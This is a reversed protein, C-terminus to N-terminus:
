TRGGFMGRAMEDLGHPELYGVKVRMEKALVCFTETNKTSMSITKAFNKSKEGDICQTVIGYVAVNTHKKKIGVILDMEINEIKGVLSNLCYLVVSIGQEGILRDLTNSAKEVYERGFDIGEIEYWEVMNKSDRYIATGDPMSTLECKSKNHETMGLILETKGSAIKGLLAIKKAPRAAKVKAESEKNIARAAPSIVVPPLPNIRGPYPPSEAPTKAGTGTPSAENAQKPSPTIKVISLNIKVKSKKNFLKVNNEFRDLEGQYKANAPLTAELKLNVEPKGDFCEEVYSLVEGHMGELSFLGAENEYTKLAEDEGIPFSGGTSKEIVFRVVREVPEYKIVFTDVAM